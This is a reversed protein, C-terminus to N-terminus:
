KVLRPSNIPKYKKDAVNALLLRAKVKGTGAIDSSTTQANRIGAQEQEQEKGPRWPYGALAGEENVSNWDRAMAKWRLCFKLCESSDDAIRMRM